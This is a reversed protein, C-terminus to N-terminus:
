QTWNSLVFTCVVIQLLIHAWNNVQDLLDGDLCSFLSKVNLLYKLLVNGQLFHGMLSQNFNVLSSEEISYIIPGKILVQQMSGLYTFVYMPKPVVHFKFLKTTTLFKCFVSLFNFIQPLRLVYMVQFCSQLICMVCTYKLYVCLLVVIQFRTSTGIQKVLQLSPLM